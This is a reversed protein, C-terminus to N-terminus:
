IPIRRKKCFARLVVEAQHLRSLKMNKTKAAMVDENPIQEQRLDRTVVSLNILITKMDAPTYQRLMPPSLSFFGDAIDQAIKKPSGAIAM